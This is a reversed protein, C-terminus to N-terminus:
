FIIPFVISKYTFCELKRLFIKKYFKSNSNMILNFNLLPIGGITFENKLPSNYSLFKYITKM